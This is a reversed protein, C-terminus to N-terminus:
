ALHLAAFVARQQHIDVLRDIQGIIDDARVYAAYNQRNLQDALNPNEPIVKEDVFAIQTLLITAYDISHDITATINQAAQLYLGVLATCPSKGHMDPKQDGDYYDMDKAQHRGMFFHLQGEVEDYANLTVEYLSMLGEVKSVSQEDMGGLNEVHAVYAAAAIDFDRMNEGMMLTYNEMIEGSGQIAQMAIKADPFVEASFFQFYKILDFCVNLQDISTKSLSLTYDMIAFKIESQREDMNYATKNFTGDKGLDDSTLGQGAKAFQAKLKQIKELQVTHTM